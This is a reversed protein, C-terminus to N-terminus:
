ITIKWHEPQVGPQVPAMLVAKYQFSTYFSRCGSITNNAAKAARFRGGGVGGDADSAMRMSAGRGQMMMMMMTVMMMMMMPRAYM